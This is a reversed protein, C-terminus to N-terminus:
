CLLLLRIKVIVTTRRNMSTDFVTLISHSWPSGYWRRNNSTLPTLSAVRTYSQPKICACHMCLMTWLQKAIRVHTWSVFILIFVKKKKKKFALWHIFQLVFSFFKRLPTIYYTSMHSSPSFIQVNQFRGSSPCNLQLTFCISQNLYTVINLQNLM